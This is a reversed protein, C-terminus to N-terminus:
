AVQEDAEKWFLYDNSNAPYHLIQEELSDLFFQVWHGIRGTQEVDRPVQFPPRFEIHYRRDPGVRCFVRVVPVGTMAALVVWTTSFRLTRGLLRARETMQGSWRVDGALFLCM